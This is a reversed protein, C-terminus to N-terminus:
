EGREEPSRYEPWYKRLEDPSNGVKVLADCLGQFQEECLRLNQQAQLAALQIRETAEQLREERFTQPRQPPDERPPAKREPEPAEEEQYEQVRKRIAALKAKGLNEIKLLDVDSMAMIEGVTHIGSARLPTQQGPTLGLDEISAFEVSM